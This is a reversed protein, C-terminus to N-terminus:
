GQLRTEPPQTIEMLSESTAQPGRNSGQLEQCRSSPLQQSWYGVATVPSVSGPAGDTLSEARPGRQSEVPIGGPRPQQKGERKTGEEERTEVLLQQDGRVGTRKRWTEKQRHGLASLDLGLAGERAEGQHLQPM